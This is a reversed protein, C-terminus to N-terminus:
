KEPNTATIGKVMASRYIWREGGLGRNDDAKIESIGPNIDDTPKYFDLKLTKVKVLKVGGETVESTIGDSLGSVYVSFRNTKSARTSVDTWIAIGYVYRPYSDARTVPIKDRAISVTTQYPRIKDPDELKRIAEFVLPQPEDYHVTNLDKTVLEFRLSNVQQPLKTPNYIRYPMYWVSTPGKGPVDITKIRPPIYEFGLTWIDPKDGPAAAPEVRRYPDGTLTQASATGSWSLLLTIVFWRFRSGFIHRSM